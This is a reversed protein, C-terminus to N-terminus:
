PILKELSFKNMVHVDIDKTKHLITNVKDSNRSLLTLETGNIELLEEKDLTYIIPTPFTKFINSQGFNNMIHIAISFAHDNRYMTNQLNYNVAYNYYNEQIHKFLDFFVKNKNSKTFYVVTAWYFDISNKGIYKFTDASDEYGINIGDKFILFDEYQQLFGKLYNSSVIYDTDMLFTNDYPSLDYALPRLNNKFNLTVSKTADNYIRNNIKKTDDVYVIKDFVGTEFNYDKDTTVICTPLDMYKRIRKALFTAQKCYDITGNNNAFVLVGSSM